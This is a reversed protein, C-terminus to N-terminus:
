KGVDLLNMHIKEDKKRSEFNVRVQLKQEGSMMDQFASQMGEYTIGSNKKNLWM